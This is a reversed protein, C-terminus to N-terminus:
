GTPEARHRAHRRWMARAYVLRAIGVALFVDGVSLIERTPTVPIVDALWPLATDDDLPEHKPGAGEMSIGVGSVAARDVPMAGNAGIVAVNLALGIGALAMGPLRRNAVLFSAVLANSGLLVALEADDSLWAPRWVALAIQAALGTFLVWGARFRTNAVVELSGGRALAFLTVALTVVAVTVM